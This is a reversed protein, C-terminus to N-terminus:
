ASYPETLKRFGIYRDRLYRVVPNRKCMGYLLYEQKTNVLYEHDKSNSDYQNTFHWLAYDESNELREKQIDLTQIYDLVDKIELLPNQMLIMGKTGYPIDGLVEM